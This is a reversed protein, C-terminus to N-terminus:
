LAIASASPLCFTMPLTAMGGAYVAESGGAGLVGKGPGDWDGPRERPLEGIRKGPGCYGITGAGGMARPAPEDLAAALTVEGGTNAIADAAIIGGGNSM